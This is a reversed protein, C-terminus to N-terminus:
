SECLDFGQERLEFSRGHRIEGKSFFDKFILSTSVRVSIDYYRVRIFVNISRWSISLRSHSKVSAANSYKAAKTPLKGKKTIATWQIKRRRFSTPHPHLPLQPRGKNIITIPATPNFLKRCHYCRQKWQASTSLRGKVRSIIPLKSKSKM